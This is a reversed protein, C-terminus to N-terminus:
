NVTIAIEAKMGKAEVSITGGTKGFLVKIHSTGQGSTISSGSPVTWVYSANDLYFTYYDKSSNATASSVGSIKLFTPPLYEYEKNECSTSFVLLMFILALLGVVRINKVNVTKM